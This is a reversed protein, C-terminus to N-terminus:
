RITAAQFRKRTTGTISRTPCGPAPISATSIFRSAPKVDVFRSIDYMNMIGGGSAVGFEVVSVASYGYQRAIDAAQLMGFAHERRRIQDFLVKHRFGLFLRAFAAAAVVHLPATLYEIGIKGVLRSLPSGTNRIKL